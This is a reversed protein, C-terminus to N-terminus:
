DVHKGVRTTVWHKGCRKCRWSWVTYGYFFKAEVDPAIGTFKFGFPPVFFPEGTQESDHVCIGLAGKMGEVFENWRQGM